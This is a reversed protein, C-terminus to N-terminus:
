ISLNYMHSYHLLSFFFFFVFFPRKSDDTITLNWEPIDTEGAPVFVWGSDFGGTEPECPSAFTSQTVSHNGPSLFTHTLFSVNFVFLFLNQSKFTSELSNSPSLQVTRLPSIPLSINSFEEQPLPKVM